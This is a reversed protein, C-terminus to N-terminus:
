LTGSLFPDGQAFSRGLATLTAPIWTVDTLLSVVSQTVTVARGYKVQFPDLMTMYRANRMPKAFVLAAEPGPVLVLFSFFFFNQGDEKNTGIGGVGRGGSVCGDM